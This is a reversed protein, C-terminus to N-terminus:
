RNGTLCSITVASWGSSQDTEWEERATGITEILSSLTANFDAIQRQFSRRVSKVNSSFSSKPSLCATFDTICVFAKNVSRIDVFYSRSVSYSLRNQNGITM